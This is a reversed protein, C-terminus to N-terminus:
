EGRIGSADIVAKWRARDRRITQQMDEISGGLPQYGLSVLRDAFEQVKVIKNIEVNLREVIERPTGGPAGIGFWNDARFNPLGAQAITPVGPLVPSPPTSTFAIPRVAGSRIHPLIEALNGFMMDLRGAIIEAIAPPGGRFPVHMMRIGAMDMFQAAWLHYSSGVGSSGYTLQDPNARAYDIVDQVTRFSTKPSVYLLNDLGAIVVVPTLDRDPDFPLTVGPMVPATCAMSMTYLLITYGDPPSSAVSAAAILGNAGTRNDVVVQQGLADSLKAAVLRALIDAGGGPPFGNILKIPQTPWSQAVAPVASMFLVALVASIRLLGRM